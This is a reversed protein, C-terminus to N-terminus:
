SSSGWTVRVVIVHLNNNFYVSSVYSIGNTMSPPTINRTSQEVLYPPDVTVTFGTPAPISRFGLADWDVQAGANRLAEIEARIDNSVREAHLLAERERDGAHDTLRVYGFLQIMAAVLVTLVALSGLVELLTLGRENSFGKEPLM